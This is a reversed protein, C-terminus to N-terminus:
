SMMEILQSLPLFFSVVYAFTVLGLLLIVIPYLVHVLAQLRYALRREGSDAMERLAWPLNGVRQAAELVAADSRGLLGQRWLAEQWDLGESMLWDAARLRRRIWAKDHSRAVCLVAESTTRGRQIMWALARLVIAVDLRRTLRGTLPANWPLWGLSHMTLYGLLFLQIWLAISLGYVFGPSQLFDLMWQSLAPLPSSFDLYIQQMRPAVYFASFLAVAQAAMCVCFLYYAKAGVAHWLPEQAARGAAAERLAPGLAGAETGVRVAVRAHSTLLSKSRDVADPLPVGSRLMQSLLQCRRGFQGGWEAAFADIGPTLPMQKEAAVALVWLLANREALRYRSAMNGVALLMIGWFLIGFAVGLLLELAALTGVAILVSGMTRLALHVQDADRARNRSYVLRLGVLVAVGLPLLLVGQIPIRDM